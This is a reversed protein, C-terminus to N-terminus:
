NSFKRFSKIEKLGQIWGRMTFLQNLSDKVHIRLVGYYNETNYQKKWQTHQYFPKTFQSLIFLKTTYNMHAPYHLACM